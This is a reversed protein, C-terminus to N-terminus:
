SSVTKRQGKHLSVIVSSPDSLATLATELRQRSVLGLATRLDVFDVEEVFPFPELGKGDETCDKVESVSAIFSILSPVWTRTGSPM